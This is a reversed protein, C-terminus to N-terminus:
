HNSFYNTEEIIYDNKNITKDLDKLGVQMERVIQQYCENNDTNIEALTLKLQTKTYGILTYLVNTMLQKFTNANAYYKHLLRLQLTHSHTKERIEKLIIETLNKGNIEQYRKYLSCFIIEEVTNASLLVVNNRPYYKRLADLVVPNDSVYDIALFVNEDLKNVCEIANLYGGRHPEATLGITNEFYEKGTTTDECVLKGVPKSNNKFRSIFEQYNISEKILVNDKGSLNYVPTGLINITRGIIIYFRNSNDLIRRKVTHSLIDKKKNTSCDDLVVIQFENNEKYLIDLTEITADTIITDAYIYVNSYNLSTLVSLMKSKGVSTDDYIRIRNTLNEGLEITYNQFYIKNDVIKLVHEESM